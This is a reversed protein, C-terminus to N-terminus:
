FKKFQSLVLQATEIVVAAVQRDTELFFRDASYSIKAYSSLVNKLKFLIECIIETWYGENFM